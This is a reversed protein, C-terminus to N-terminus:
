GMAVVAIGSAVLLIGALAAIARGFPAVKELLVFITIAAVWALNM